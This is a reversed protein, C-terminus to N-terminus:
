SRTRVLILGGSGALTGYRGGAETASLFRVDAVADIPISALDRVTGYPSDNLFVAVQTPSTVSTTGRSRLWQPRISQIAQYLDNRNTNMLQEGTVVGASGGSGGSGTSACAGSAVLVTALAFGGLLRFRKLKM